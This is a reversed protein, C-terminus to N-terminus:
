GDSPRTPMTRPYPPLAVPPPVCGHEQEWRLREDSSAYFRLWTEEDSEDVCRWHLYIRPLDLKKECAPLIDRYLITYLQRDSLHDTMDLMIQKDYLARITKWLLQSLEDNSLSDPHPLALPPDFWDRIPIAPAREWALMSALFENEVSLPLRQGELVVISDDVYPELEDRLQANLLLQDVEDM